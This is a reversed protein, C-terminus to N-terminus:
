RRHRQRRSQAEAALGVARRHQDEGQGARHQPADHAAGRADRTPDAAPAQRQQQRDDQGGKAWAALKQGTEEAIRAGMPFAHLLHEPIKGYIAKNDKMMPVGPNDPSFTMSLTMDYMFKKECIPVWGAPQIRTRERGNDDIVKVFEIKEEARLCFLLYMRMSRVRAMLKRKHEQKPINWAPANLKDWQWPELEDLSQKKAMKLLAADHMDQLGGIGEYEDSASDFILAHYGALQAQMAADAVREPTFPPEMDAHDFEFLDAYHNARGGETDILAIKGQAGVLGRALRLASFTKGTGSAGALAILLNTGRSRDARRFEIKTTM